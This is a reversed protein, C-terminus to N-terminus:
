IRVKMKRVDGTLTIDCNLRKYRTGLMLSIPSLQLWFGIWLTLLPMWILEWVMQFHLFGFLPTSLFSYFLFFFFFVLFFAFVYHVKFNIIAFFSVVPQGLSHWITGNSFLKSWYKELYICYQYITRFPPNMNWTFLSSPQIWRFGLALKLWEVSRCWAPQRQLCIHHFWCLM